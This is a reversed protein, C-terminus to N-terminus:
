PFTGSRLDAVRRRSRVTTRWKIVQAALTTRWPRATQRCWDKPFPVAAVTRRSQLARLQGKKPCDTKIATEAFKMMLGWNERELPVPGQRADFWGDVASQLDNRSFLVIGTGQDRKIKAM